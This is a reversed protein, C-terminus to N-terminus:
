DMFAVLAKVNTKNKRQLKNLQSRINVISVSLLIFLLFNHLFLFLYFPIFSSIFFHFFFLFSLPSFYINLFTSM